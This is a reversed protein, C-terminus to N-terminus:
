IEKSSIPARWKTGTPRHGITHKHLHWRPSPPYSSDRGVLPKCAYGCTYKGYLPLPDNLPHGPTGRAELSAAGQRHIVDLSITWASGPKLNCVTTSMIKSNLGIVDMVYTDNGIMLKSVIRQKMWPKVMSPVEKKGLQTKTLPIRAWIIGDKFLYSTDQFLLQLSMKTILELLGPSSVSIAHHQAATTAGHM